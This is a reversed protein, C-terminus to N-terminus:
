EVGLTLLAHALRARVVDEDTQEVPFSSHKLTSM